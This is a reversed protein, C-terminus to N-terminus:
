GGPPSSGSGLPLRLHQRHVAQQVQAPHHALHHSRQGHCATQRAPRSPRAPPGFPQSFQPGTPPRPPGPPGSPPGLPPREPPSCPALQMAVSGM